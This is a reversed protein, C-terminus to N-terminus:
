KAEKEFQKKAEDSDFTLRKGSRTEIRTVVSNVIGKALEFVAYQNMGEESVYTVTLYHKRKKFMLAAPSAAFSVAVRRGAKEGYYVSAIGQYPIATTSKRSNFLIGFKGSIDLRGETNEAVDSLSGSVYRAEEGRVAGSALSSCFILALGVPLFHLGIGKATNRLLHGKTKVLFVM